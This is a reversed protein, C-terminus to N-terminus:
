GRRNYRNAMEYKAFDSFQCNFDRIFRLEDDNVNLFFQGPYHTDRDKIPCKSLISVLRIELEQDVLRKFDQLFETESSEVFDKNNSISSIPIVVGKTESKEYTM